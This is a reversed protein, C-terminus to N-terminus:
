ASIIQDAIVAECVGASADCAGCGAGVMFDTGVHFQNAMIAVMM